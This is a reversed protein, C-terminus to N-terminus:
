SVSTANRLHSEWHALIAVVVSLRLSEMRDYQEQVMFRSMLAVNEHYNGTEHLSKGVAPDAFTKFTGRGLAAPTLLVAIHWSPRRRRHVIRGDCYAPGSRLCSRGRHGWLDPRRPTTPATRFLSSSVQAVEAVVKAVVVKLTSVGAATLVATEAPTEPLLVVNSVSAAGIGAM